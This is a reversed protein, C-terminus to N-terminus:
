KRCKMLDVPTMLTHTGGCALIGGIVCKFYYSADHVDGGPAM